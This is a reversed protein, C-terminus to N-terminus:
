RRHLIRMLLAGRLSKWALTLEKSQEDDLRKHGYLSRVYAETIVDLEQQHHPLRVALNDRYQYPTQHSQIGSAGLAGLFALRRFTVEPRHSPVMYRLWLLRLAGAMAVPVLLFLLYWTWSRSANGSTPGLGAGGSIGDLDEPTCEGELLEEFEPFCEDLPLNLLSGLIPRPAIIQPAQPVSRPGQKGPTPEFDIWGYGPFFVEVWAHSDNDRVLYTNFTIQTGPGYGTALRAPVGAARMLVAMASAFYESYGQRSDFLFHDVGDANFPPPDIEQSYPYSSELYLEIANAKDYPTPASATLQSALNRVRQPLRDPLQLYKATVWAPYAEGAGMLESETAFSLSTTVSYTEGQKLKSNGLDLYLIDPPSPVAQTITFEVPKDGEGVIRGVKWDPSLVEQLFTGPSDAMTLQSAELIKEAVGEQLPPLVDRWDPDRLDLTYTTSDHTEVQAERDSRIVQGGTFLNKNKFVSRVRHTVEERMQYEQELSFEPTWDVPHLTTDGMSWGTSEYDSFSRVKWYMAHPSTIELVPNDTNKITGRFPLLGVFDRYPRPKKGPLGAFLRNFDDSLTSVPSTVANYAGNTPRYLVDLPLLYAIVMIGTAFWLGTNLQRWGVSNDLRIRQKRWGQVRRVAQVRSLLLLTAFMYLLFDLYAGSPSINTLNIVIAVGGLLFVGWYSHYRFLSWASLYGVLWTGVLLLFAFPIPDINITGDVAADIWLGLRHWLEGVDALGSSQPQFFVLQAVILGFGLALGAPLLLPAPLSIRSLVLGSGVALVMTLTLSPTEVWDVKDVSWAVVLLNATLLLVALWGEQPHLRRELVGMARFANGTTWGSPHSADLPAEHKM